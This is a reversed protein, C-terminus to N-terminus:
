QERDGLIFFSIVAGRVSMKMVWHINSIVWNHTPQCQVSQSYFVEM